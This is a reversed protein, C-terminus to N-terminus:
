VSTQYLRSIATINLAALGEAKAKAFLERGAATMPLAAASSQGLAYAFDKEVLDIPFLPADLKAQMLSLAGKAAPSTVPLSALVETMAALHGDSNRLLALLEAVAAVQIGFLANVALKLTTGAGVPGVHHTAGGLASLISRARDFINADGGVLYILQGADAQPRSGVVPADLFGAGTKHVLTALEKAWGPTLTSSEIAIAGTHLGNLAGDQEDCWIARSAENDRVMAIAIEAGEAAARPTKGAVAGAAELDRLPGSSRNYVSVEHGAGLLRAAMRSGMAGLGLVAVRM